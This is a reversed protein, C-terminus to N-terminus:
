CSHLFGSLVTCRWLVRCPRYESWSSELVPQVIVEVVAPLELCRLCKVACSSSSSSFKGPSLSSCGQMVGLSPPCQLVKARQWECRLLQNGGLGHQLSPVGKGLSGPVVDMVTRSLSFLAKIRCVHTVPLWVQELLVITVELWDTM